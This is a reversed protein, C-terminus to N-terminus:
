LFVIETDKIFQIVELALKKTPLNFFLTVTHDVIDYRDMITDYDISISTTKVLGERRERWTDPHNLEEYQKLNFHESVYGFHEKKM